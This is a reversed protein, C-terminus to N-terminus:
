NRLPSATRDSEPRTVWLYLRRTSVEHDYPDREHAEVIVFGAAELLGTLESLSFLTADLNAPQELMQTAHLSGEGGHVAVLHAGGVTLVRHLERLVGPVQARPIHILAYFCVIGALSDNHLGLAALDGQGVPMSPSHIRAQTVMGRSRDIGVVNAGREALFAGVHGPGCGLDCVVGAGHAGRDATLVGAFRTLLDRDFPKADLENLFHGAYRAAVADYTVAPDAWRDSGIDVQPTPESL